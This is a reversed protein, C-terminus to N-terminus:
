QKRSPQKEMEEIVDMLIRQAEPEDIKRRILKDTAAAILEASQARIERIAQQRMITTDEILARKKRELEANWEAMLQRRRELIRREADDFMQQADQDIAALRTEYRNRAREALKRQHQARKIEAKIMRTRKRLNEAIRPLVWRSLLLYLVAFSIITWFMQSAFFTTDFQPM